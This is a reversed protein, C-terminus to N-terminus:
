SVLIIIKLLYKKISIILDEGIFIGDEPSFTDVGLISEGIM